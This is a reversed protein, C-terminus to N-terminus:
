FDSVRGKREWDGFRTPEKGKPGNIEGTLRNMGREDIDPDERSEEVVAETKKFLSDTVISFQKRLPDLDTELETEKDLPVSRAAKDLSTSSNDSWSFHRRFARHGAYVTRRLYHM